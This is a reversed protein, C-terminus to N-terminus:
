AIKWGEWDKRNNQDRLIGARNNHPGAHFLGSTKMGTYGPCFRSRDRSYLKLFCRYKKNFDNLTSVASVSFRTFIHADTFFIEKYV